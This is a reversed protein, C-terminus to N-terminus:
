RGWPTKGGKPGPATPTRAPTKEPPAVLARLDTTGPQVAVITRDAGLVVTMPLEPLAWDEMWRRADGEDGPSAWLLDSRGAGPLAAFATATALPNAAFAVCVLRVTGAYEPRELEHQWARLQEGDDGDVARVFHYVLWPESRTAPDAAGGGLPSGATRPAQAGIRGHFACLAVLPAFEPVREALSAAATRAEALEGRALLWRVRLARAPLQFAPYDSRDIRDLLPGIEGQRAYALRWAALLYLAKNEFKTGAARDVARTLPREFRLERARREEAPLRRVAAMDAEIAEIERGAAAEKESVVPRLLSGNNDVEGAALPALLLAALLLVRM